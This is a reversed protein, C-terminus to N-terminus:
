SIKSALFKLLNNLDVGDLILNGYSDIINWKFNDRLRWLAFVKKEYREFNHENEQNVQCWHDILDQKDLNGENVQINAFGLHNNLHCMKCLSIIDHLRQISNTYDYNWLEHASLQTENAECIVCQYRDKKYVARRLIDWEESPLVARLNSYFSKQPVLNGWLKYKSLKKELQICNKIISKVPM